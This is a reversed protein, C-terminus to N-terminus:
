GRLPHRWFRQASWIAFGVCFVNIVIEIQMGSDSLINAVTYFGQLCNFFIDILALFMLGGASILGFLVSKADKTVLYLAAIAATLAVFGDALPFSSEFGLYIAAETRAAATAPALVFDPKTLDTHFYAIWYAAILLATIALLWAHRRDGPM